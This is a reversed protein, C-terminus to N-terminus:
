GRLAVATMVEPVGHGKAERAFLYIIPGVILGGAAPVLLKKYTPATKIIDFLEGFGGFFLWQVAEIMYFFLIAGAGALLGVVFALISVYTNEHRTVINLLNKVTRKPV